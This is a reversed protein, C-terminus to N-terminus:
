NGYMDMAVAFYGMQALQKARSKPYDTIGWWEPIVVVVPRAGSIATDYAVYGTMNASDASYNITEEKIVPTKTVATDSEPAKKEGNNCSAIAFLSAAILIGSFRQFRM